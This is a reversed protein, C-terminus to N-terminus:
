AAFEAGLQEQGTHDILEFGLDCGKFLAQALKVCLLRGDTVGSSLACVKTHLIREFDRETSHLRVIQHPKYFM